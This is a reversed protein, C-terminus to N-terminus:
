TEYSPWRNKYTTPGHHPIKQRQGHFHYMFGVLIKVYKIKKWQYIWKITQTQQPKDNVDIWICSKAFSVLSHSLSLAM